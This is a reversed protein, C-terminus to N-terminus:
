VQKEGLCCGFCASWRNQPLRLAIVGGLHERGDFVAVQMVPKRYKIAKREAALRGDVTNACSIVLHARRICPDIRASEAPEVLPEFAFDPRGRFFKWLVTVKEKGLDTPRAFVSSGSNEPELIQPDNASV